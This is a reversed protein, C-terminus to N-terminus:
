TGPTTIMVWHAGGDSTRQISGRVTAYGTLSDGFLIQPAVGAAQEYDSIYPHWAKGADTTELSPGGPVILLWRSATVVALTGAANPLRALYSWSAGGDTSTFIYIRDQVDGDQRGSATALLTTGFEKVLGARLEFGGNQSVFGPPDPLTSGTWSRGGDSTRYITPQHNADWADLFGHTLDVFSLNEKCQVLGIGSASSGSRAAGDTTQWIGEGEGNCQTEPSGGTSLWGHQDDVFTVNALPSLSQTPLSRQVWSDGRDTSRFLLGQGFHVWLIDASPASIQATQPLFVQTPTPSAFPTPTPSPLRTASAPGSRVPGLSQRAFLLVGITAITLVAVAVLAISSLARSPPREDHRLSSIRARFEPSPEGSREDLARRLEREDPTM